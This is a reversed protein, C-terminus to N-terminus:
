GTGGSATSRMLRSTSALAATAIESGYDYNGVPQGSSATHISMRQGPVYRLPSHNDALQQHVSAPM